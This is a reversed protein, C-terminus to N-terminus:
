RYAMGWNKAVLVHNTYNGKALHFHAGIHRLVHTPRELFVGEKGLHIYIERMANQIYDSFKDYALKSEYIKKCNRSKLLKLSEITDKRKIYKLWIGGKIEKTKSEFVKMLLTEKGNKSFHPTYNLEMGELAKFRSCTEVGIWFWRFPDSDIGYKEKLFEDAKAFEEDTFRTDAYQAHHVIKRSMENTGREWSIGYVAGFSAIAYSARYDITEIGGQKVTKIKKWDLNNKYADIYAMKFKEASEKTDILEEPKCKCTNCIREIMNLFVKASTLGKGKKRTTLKMYWGAVLSDNLIPHAKSFETFKAANSKEPKEYQGNSDRKVLGENAAIELYNYVSRREKFGLTTAIESINKPEKKLRPNGILLSSVEKAIDLKSATKGYLRLRKQLSM